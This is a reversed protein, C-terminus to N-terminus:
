GDEEMGISRLASQIDRAYAKVFSTIQQVARVDTALMHKLIRRRRAFEEEMREPPWNKSEAIRDLMYSRKSYDFQDNTPNWTFVTNSLLERTSPDIGVLEVVEKVRRVRTLERDLLKRYKYAHSRIHASPGQ